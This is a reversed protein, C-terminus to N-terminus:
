DSQLLHGGRLILVDTRSAAPGSWSQLLCCCIAATAVCALLVKPTTVSAGDGRLVGDTVLELARGNHHRILLLLLVGRSVLLVLVLQVVLVIPIIHTDCQLLMCAALPAVISNGLQLQLRRGCGSLVLHCRLRHLCQVMGCSEAGTAGGAM